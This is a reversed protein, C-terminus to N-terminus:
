AQYETIAFQKRRGMIGGRLADMLDEHPHQPDEPYDQWQGGRRARRYGQFARVLHQCRPHIILRSVDDAPNLFGEVAELGDAVSGLPWRTMGLGAAQYAAIVTPGVPNRSGGAPDTLRYDIRGNCRSDAVALIARANREASLGEAFYDAFVAISETGDGDKRVQFFVAGTVVGSDVALYVPIDPDYEAADTVHRGGLTPDFRTFWLGDAKPGLCLYDAEFVRLSLAKVKQILSDIAYHGNSRKAKPLGSPHQDRDEHCWKVLPCAPCHELHGGSRDTPCRELVEFACFAYTPFEGARGRELLDSMPGGIRHWTSTMSVSANIGHKAMCMGFASERIDPDIEDVEDLRLTPVHPGRVSKDSAPIYRVESGNAYAAKTATFKGILDCDQFPRRFDKLAAYVQASQAESGGLIVTEHGPRRASDVHTAFGAMYSKGGGRPGHILSLRPREYILDSVFTM